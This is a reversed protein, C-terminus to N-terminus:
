EHRLAAVPDIRAARRAPWASAGVGTAVLLVLAALFAVAEISGPGASLIRRLTLVVVSTALAGIACGAAVISCADGLIMRIVASRTAGLALRVGIEFTRRSATYRVVGYLGTMALLMAVAGLATMLLGGIEAPLLATALRDATPSAAVVAGPERIAVARELSRLAGAAPGAVRVVLSTSADPTYLVPVTDHGVGTAKSDRAVGVVRAIREGRGTEDNGPLVLRRDIPDDAPFYRRAFTQNVLVPLDGRPATFDNNAFDRGRELPIAMTQFFNPGVRPIATSLPADNPRDARRVYEVITLPPGVGRDSSVSEVGSTARIVDRLMFFDRLRQQRPLRVDVAVTHTLDFGPEAIRARLFATLLVFAVTLLLFCIAVQGGVLARQLTFRRLRYGQRRFQLGAVPTVHSATWAPAAGCALTTVLALVASYVFPLSSPVASVGANVVAPVTLILAASWYWLAGGAVSGITAIVFSEALFQQALRARSAGLATRVAVEHRREDARAVLLGAVNACAIALVLGVLAYVIGIVVPALNSPATNLFSFGTAPVAHLTRSLGANDTPFRAELSAAAVRLAATARDPAVDDRLRGIVDFYAAKRNELAAAVRAQTEVYVNPSAVAMSRFERPLVGVVVYPDDNLRIMKGVIAPDGGLRQQWFGFTLVVRAPDTTSVADGTHFVHGLQPTVGAVDFFNDSVVHAHITVPATADRWTMTIMTMTALDIPLDSRRLDLYNPHSLGPAIWVLREPDAGSVISEFLVRHLVAYVSVNVGVGFGISLTTTLLLLPRKALLRVAQRLDDYVADMAPFRLRDRYRERTQTVGGFKLLADRRAEDPTMGARLKDDIHHQLHSEIEDALEREARSGRIVALLRMVFARLSTMVIATAADPFARPNGDDTGM